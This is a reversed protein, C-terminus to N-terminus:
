TVNHFWYFVTGSEFGNGLISQFDILFIWFLSISFFLSGAPPCCGL